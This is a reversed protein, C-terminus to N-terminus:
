EGINDIAALLDVFVDTVLRDLTGAPVLELDRNFALVADLMEQSPKLDQEVLSEMLATLVVGKLLTKVESKNM